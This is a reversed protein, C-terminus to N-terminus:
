NILTVWQGANDSKFAYKRGSLSCEINFNHRKVLTVKIGPYLLIDKRYEQREPMGSDKSMRFESHLFLRPQDTLIMFYKKTSQVKVGLVTTHM